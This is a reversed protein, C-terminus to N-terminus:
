GLYVRGEPYRIADATGRALMLGLALPGIRGLFMIVVLVGRGFDDLCQGIDGQQMPNSGANWMQYGYRALSAIKSGDEM